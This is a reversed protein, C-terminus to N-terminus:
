KSQAGWCPSNMRLSVTVLIRAWAGDGAFVCAAVILFPTEALPLGDPTMGASTARLLCLRILLPETAAAELIDRRDGVLDGVFADETLEPVDVGRVPVGAVVARVDSELVFDLNLTTPLGLIPGGAGVTLGIVLLVLLCDMAPAVGLADTLREVCGRAEMAEDRRDVVPTRVLLTPKFAACTSVGNEGGKGSSFSGADGVDSAGSSSSASSMAGGATEFGTDGAVCVARLALGM